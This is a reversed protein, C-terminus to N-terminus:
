AVVHLLSVDVPHHIVDNNVNQSGDGREQLACIVMVRHIPLENVEVQVLLQQNVDLLTAECLHRDKLVLEDQVGEVHHYLLAERELARVEQLVEHLHSVSIVTLFVGCHLVHGGNTAGHDRRLGRFVVIRRRHVHRLNDFVVRSEYMGQDLHGVGLHLNPVVSEDRAPTAPRVYQVVDRVIGNGKLLDHVPQQGVVEAAVARDDDVVDAHHPALRQQRVRLMQGGDTLDVSSQGWAGVQM